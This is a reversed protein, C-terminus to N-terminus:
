NFPGLRGARPGRRIPARKLGIIACRHALGRLDIEKVSGQKEGASVPFACAIKLTIADCTPRIYPQVVRSGSGLFDSPM